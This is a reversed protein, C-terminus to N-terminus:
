TVPFVMTPVSILTRDRSSAGSPKPRVDLTTRSRAAPEGIIRTVQWRRSFKPTLRAAIRRATRRMAM